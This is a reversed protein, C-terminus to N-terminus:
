DRGAGAIGGRLCDGGEGDSDVGASDADTGVSGARLTGGGGTKGVRLPAAPDVTDPLAAGGGGGALGMEDADERM